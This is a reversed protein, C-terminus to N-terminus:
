VPLESPAFKAWLLGPATVIDDGTFVGTQVYAHHDGLRFTNIVLEPTTDV